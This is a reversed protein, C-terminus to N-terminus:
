YGHKSSQCSLRQCNRRWRNLFDQPQGKKVAIDVVYEDIDYVHKSLKKINDNDPMLYLGSSDLMLGVHHLQRMVM